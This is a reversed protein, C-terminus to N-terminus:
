PVYVGGSTCGRATYSQYCQCCPNAEFKGIMCLVPHECVVAPELELTLCYKGSEALRPHRTKTIKQVGGSDDEEDEDAGNDDEYESEDDSIWDGDEQREKSEGDREKAVAKITRLARCM